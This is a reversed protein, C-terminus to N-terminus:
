RGYGPSMLDRLERDHRQRQIIQQAQERAIRQLEAQHDAARQIPERERAERERKAQEAMRASQRKIRANKRVNAPIREGASSMGVIEDARNRVKKAAIESLSGFVKVRQDPSNPHWYVWVGRHSLDEDLRFDLAELTQRTRKCHGNESM